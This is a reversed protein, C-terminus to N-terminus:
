PGPGPWSGAAMDRLVLHAPDVVVHSVRRRQWSYTIHVLGDATQIVAPYSYEGPQDELVLAAQWRVGDASLAVNLVERGATCHNYVVLQRGDRLTVADIGANPNPLESLTMEGWSLGGDLSWTQAIRGSRSRALLQLRDGGHRLLCPQIADIEQARNLPGLRRWTQGLDSSRELYVRWGQSFVRLGADETSSPSLLTGDPLQIPKDKIPGLIGDPLRQPMGWTAGGDASTAVMGWWARPSAGVKYFLMLPGGAPKFLVPNWCAYRRDGIVTGDVLQVPRSWSGGRPKRSSWIAVEHQGEYDGGFWAAILAGDVECLTSAHCMATPMDEAIFERAVVGPQARIQEASVRVHEPACGCLALALAVTAALLAARLDCAPGPM